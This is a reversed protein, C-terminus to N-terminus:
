SRALGRAARAVALKERLEMRARRDAAAQGRWHRRMRQWGAPTLGHGAIVELINGGCDIAAQLAVYADLTGVGAGAPAEHAARLAEDVARALDSRGEGAERSLAEAQ